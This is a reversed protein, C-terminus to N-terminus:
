DGGCFFAIKPRKSRIVEIMPRLVEQEPSMRLSYQLMEIADGKNDQSLFVNATRNLVDANLISLRQMDGFLQATENPRGEALYAEALNWIIEASDPQLKRARALHNIGETSRGLCHLIAGADNLAQADNPTMRLHGQICDLAEQYRGADALELGRRYNESAALTGDLRQNNRHNPGTTM